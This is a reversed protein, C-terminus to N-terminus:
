SWLTVHVSPRFRGIKAGAGRMMAQIARPSSIFRMLEQATPSADSLTQATWVGQGRLGPGDLKVLRGERLDGAVAFQVALTVGHTTRKTEELAAAESQFIRQNAEPVGISRLTDCIVGESGAASPGLFWEQGRLAVPTVPRGALPHDPAVVAVVEYKLFPKALMSAPLDRQKPGVAVDVSRDALLSAFRGPHEVSLQLELDDARSAFLDMLGTAAHEAFLASAAIHLLRRGQGAAKIEWVTRDQLGLIESARGALRLGGPTFALGSGTRSVLQDGFEKRLKGIHLSVAAESVGLEVAAAKVSGLRVVTCFARLQAPTM